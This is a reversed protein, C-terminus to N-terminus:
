GRALKRPARAPESKKEAAYYEMIKEISICLSYIKKPRGKGGRRVERETVWNNEHLTRMAISVNPQSIGTGMEIERSTAESTNSLYTILAAAGRPMKLSKLIEIFAM